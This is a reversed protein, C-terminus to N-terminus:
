VIEDPTVDHYAPEPASYSAALRPPLALQWEEITWGVREGRYPPDNKAIIAKGGYKGVILAVARSSTACCTSDTASWVVDGGLVRIEACHSRSTVSHYVELLVYDIRSDDVLKADSPSVFEYVYYEPADRPVDILYRSSSYRDPVYLLELHKFKRCYAKVREIQGTVDVRKVIYGSEALQRRQSELWKDFDRVLTWTDPIAASAKYGGRAPEYELQIARAPVIYTECESVRFGGRMYFPSEVVAIHRAGCAASAVVRRKALVAVSGEIKAIPLRPVAIREGTKFKVEQAAV